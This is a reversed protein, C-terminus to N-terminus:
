GGFKKQVAAVASKTFVALRGAHTGPALLEANLADVATVDLGPINKAAKMAECKRSVIM